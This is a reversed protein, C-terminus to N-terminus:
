LQRIFHSVRARFDDPILAADPTWDSRIFMQKSNIWDDNGVGAFFMKTNMDKRFRDITKKIADPGTTQPTLPCFNLGLGLLTRFKLPPSLM